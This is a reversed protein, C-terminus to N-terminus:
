LTAKQPTHSSEPKTRLLTYLWVLPLFSLFFSIINARIITALMIYFLQEPLAANEPTEAPLTISYRSAIDQIGYCVLAGLVLFAVRNKIRGRSALVFGFPLVIPWLWGVWHWLTMANQPDLGLLM